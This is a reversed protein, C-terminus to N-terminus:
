DDYFHNKLRYSTDRKIIEYGEIWRPDKACDKLTLSTNQADQKKPTEMKM